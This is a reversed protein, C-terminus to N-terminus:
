FYYMLAATTAYGDSTRDEDLTTGGSGFEADLFIWRFDLNVAVHDSVPLELGAGAHWGFVNETQDDFGIAELEESFDIQTFYYGAGGVLYPSLHPLVPLFFLLSATVPYSHQRVEGNAGGVDLNFKEELRYDIAGELGFYEGLRLRAQLGVYWAGNEADQSRYYGGRPGFGFTNEIEVEAWGTQSWLLLTLLPLFFLTKRM